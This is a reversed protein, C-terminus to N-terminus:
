SRCHGEACRSAQFWGQPLQDDERFCRCAEARFLEATAHQHGPHIRIPHEAFVQSGALPQNLGLDVTGTSANFGSGQESENASFRNL